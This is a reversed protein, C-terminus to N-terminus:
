VTGPTTHKAGPDINTKLLRLVDRAPTTTQATPTLFAVHNHVQQSPARAAAGDPHGARAHAPGAGLVAAYSLGGPPGSTPAVSRGGLVGAGAARAPFDPGLQSEGSLAPFDDQLAPRPQSHLRKQLAANERRVDAIQGQLALTAGRETAADARLDSCFAVMEFVKSMIFRPAEVPVKNAALTCYSLIEDEIARIRRQVRSGLDSPFAAAM